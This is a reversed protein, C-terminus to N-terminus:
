DHVDRLIVLSANRGDLWKMSIESLDMIKDLQKIYSRWSIEKRETLFPKQVVGIGKFKDHLDEILIKSDKGSFEYGLMRDLPENSFLVEGTEADRIFIGVQLYNYTDVLLKNINSINGDGEIRTLRGQIVNTIDNAFELDDDTWIKEENTNAMVIIGSELNNIVIPFAVFSKVNSHEMADKFKKNKHNKDVLIYGVDPIGSYRFSPNSKQWDGIYEEASMNHGRSWLHSCEFIDERNKSYIVMVDIDLYEGTQAMVANITANSDDDMANLAETLIKQRQVKTELMLEISKSRMAEKYLVKSNYAYESFVRGLKWQLKYVKEMAEIDNKDYGCAIWTAIHTGGIMVPAGCMMSGQIGDDMDMMVPVNNKLIVENLKMYISRYKPKEFLDYFAGMHEQPGAPETIQRGEADIVTSYLGTIESFVRVIENWKDVDIDNEASKEEDGDNMIYSLKDEFEKKAEHVSNELEKKDSIDSIFQEVTCSNDGSRTISSQSKVWLVKGTDNVIRFENEYDSKGTKIANRTNELVYSRDKPHIYDEILKN